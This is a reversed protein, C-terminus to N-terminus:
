TTSAVLVIFSIERIFEPQYHRLLHKLLKDKAEESHGGVGGNAAETGGAGGAGAGAAAVAAPPAPAAATAAASAPASPAATAGAAPAAAPSPTAPTSVAGPGMAGDGAAGVAPPPPLLSIAASRDPPHPRPTPKLLPYEASNTTPPRFRTNQSLQRVHPTITAHHHSEDGPSVSFYFQQSMRLSRPWLCGCVTLVSVLSILVLSECVVYALFAHFADKALVSLLSILVLSKCVVYALFARFADKIQSCFCPADSLPPSVKRRQSGGPSLLCRFAASRHHDSGVASICVGECACVYIRSPRSAM